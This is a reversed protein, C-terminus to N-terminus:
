LEVEHGFIKVTPSEQDHPDKGEYRMREQVLKLHKDCVGLMRSKDNGPKNSSILHGPNPEGCFCCFSSLAYKIPGEYKPYSQGGLPGVCGDGTCKTHAWSASQKRGAHLHACMACVFSFGAEIAGQVDIKSPARSM